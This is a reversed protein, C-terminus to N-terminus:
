PTVTFVPGPASTVGSATVLLPGTTANAGVLVTILDPDHPTFTSSGTQGPTEGGIAVGSTGYLGTGTVTVVTGAPGSTPKISTVVPTVIFPTQTYASSSGVGAPNEVVIDGSTAGDPVVATIQTSNNVTFVPAMQGGFSISYVGDFSAGTVVVTGGVPAQAPQFSVVEPVYYITKGGCGLAAALCLGAVIAAPLTGTKRIDM